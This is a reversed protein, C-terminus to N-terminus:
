CIRRPSKPTFSEKFFLITMMSSLRLKSPKKEKKLFSLKFFLVKLPCHGTDDIVGLRDIASLSESRNNSHNLTPVFEVAATTLFEEYFFNLANSTHRIEEVFLQGCRGPGEVRFHSM